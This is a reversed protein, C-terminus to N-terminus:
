FIERDANFKSVVWSLSIWIKPTKYCCSYWNQFFYIRILESIVWSDSPSSFSPDEPEASENIFSKAFGSSQVVWHSYGTVAYFKQQSSCTFFDPNIRFLQFHCYQFKEPLWYNGSAASSASNIKFFPIGESTSTNSTICFKFSTKVRLSFILIGTKIRSAQDRWIRSHGM